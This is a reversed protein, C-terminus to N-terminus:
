KNDILSLFQDENLIELNLKQAKELKSPGIKDGAVLYDTKSSISSVNKGGYLEILKKLEDRSHKVFTGSIIISKGSLQDGVPANEESLELQIGYQKLKNILELQKEDSFHRIIEDAIKDGIEDITILEERSAAILKDISKLNRALTKAVTEGVYRIGLAFLVREFPTKKSDEISKILNDASKEAFRELQLLDSKTLTFFDSISNLYGARFLQDITAEATGIDMAKRSVFHELKGKIQPPCGLENPCYHKAEGEKRLLVSNCEPCNNIYITKESNSERKTKNVGVVKPIIEGGKEVYVWDNVRIDLMAIQDANHLSARKVTTGALQVADLNAVPTIAGTRGVQYSISQLQTEVQEAKFKYSTAWRPSKATFGLEQQQSLDNIKIVIGDIDYPLNSREEEWYEIFAIVDSLKNCKKIIEPVKFGWHRAAEMNELHTDYPLNDGMIYYLFCDLPRTAAIASNQIKLSGSATNRTNAYEAEGAKRREENMKELGAHTIFIEGRIEFKEPINKGKLKLPISRITKINATVNDGKEGDGRTVARVLIGNEYTLSISAGDYKLECIYEFDGPLLKKNRTEFDFLEEKSYTNDLSLMPYSHAEQTFEQNLDSGVRQSPSSPDFFEPNNKELNILEKLLQDYEFDSISPTSQVYYSHNHKNIVERLQSIRESIELKNM